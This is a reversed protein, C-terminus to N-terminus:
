AKRYLLSWPMEWVEPYIGKLNFISCIPGAAIGAPLKLPRSHLNDHACPKDYKVKLLLKWTDLINTVSFEFKCEKAISESLQGNVPLMGKRKTNVKDIRENKLLILLSTMVQKLLHHHKGERMLGSVDPDLLPAKTPRVTHKRIHMSTVSLPFYSWSNMYLWKLLPPHIYVTGSYIYIQLLHTKVSINIFERIYLKPDWKLSTARGQWRLWITIVLDLQYQFLKQVRIQHIPSFIIWTSMNSHITTPLNITQFPNCVAATDNLKRKMPRKKLLWDINLDGMFYIDRDTDSAHQLMTCVRDLYITHSSPPRYCCCVILPKLHPLHVQIRGGCRAM